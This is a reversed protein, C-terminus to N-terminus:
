NYLDTLQRTTKLLHENKSLFIGIDDSLNGHYNTHQLTGKKINQIFFFGLVLGGILLVKGLKM